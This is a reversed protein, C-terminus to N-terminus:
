HDFIHRIKHLPRFYTGALFCRNLFTKMQNPNKGELIHYFRIPRQQVLNADQLHDDNSFLNREFSTKPDKLFHNNEFIIKPNDLVNVFSGTIAEIELCKVKDLVFIFVVFHLFM